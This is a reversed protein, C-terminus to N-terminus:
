ICMVKCNQTIANQLENTLTLNFVLLVIIYHLNLSLKRHFLAPIRSGQKKTYWCHWDGVAGIVAYIVKVHQHGKVTNLTKTVVSTTNM